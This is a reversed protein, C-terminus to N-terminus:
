RTRAEYYVWDRSTRFLVASLVVVILFLVWALASAYGMRLYGFAIQYLYLPYFLLSGEPAGLSTAGAPGGSIVFGQTFYGFMGIATTLVNFFLVPTVQPLTIHRFIPWGGAGDLEAAEYLSRPVQRLGALFIITTNGSTWIEILLIGPKSWTASSFWGPGGIHLADLGSNLLGGAPNLVWLWLLASAVPPVLVPLYLVARYVGLGRLPRNLLLAAGLSVSIVLPVGFLVMYLTNGLAQWFQPDNTLLTQYNALGVWQQPTMLNYSTFSNYLTLVLPGVTLGCFGILWPALFLLPVGFQRLARGRRRKHGRTPHPSVPHITSDDIARTM